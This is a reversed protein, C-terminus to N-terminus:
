ADGARTHGCEIPLDLTHARGAATVLLPVLYKGAPLPGLNLV